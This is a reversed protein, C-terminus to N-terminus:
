PDSKNTLISIKTDEATKFDALQVCLKVPSFYSTVTLSETNSKFRSSFVWTNHVETIKGTDFPYISLYQVGSKDYLFWM